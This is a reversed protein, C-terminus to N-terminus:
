PTTTETPPVIALNDSSTVVDPYDSLEAARVLACDQGLSSIYACWAYNAKVEVETTNKKAEAIAKDAIATREAADVQREREDALGTAARTAQQAAALQNDAETKARQPAGIIKADDENMVPEPLVVAPHGCTSAAGGFSYEPGCFYSGGLAKTLAAPLAEGIEQAAKDREGDTNFALKTPDYKQLVRTAVDDVVPRFRENLFGFQWSGGQTNFDTADLPRLIKEIFDCVVPKEGIIESNLTFTITPEFDMDIGKVKVSVSDAIPTDGQAPDLSIRYQRLTVPVDIIEPGFGQSERGSGPEVYGKFDKSDFPGGNYVCSANSSDTKSFSCAAMQTVALLSLLAIGVRKKTNM